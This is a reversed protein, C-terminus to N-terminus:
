RIMKRNYRKVFDTREYPLTFSCITKVKKKLKMVYIGWVLAVKVSVENTMKEWTMLLSVTNSNIETLKNWSM